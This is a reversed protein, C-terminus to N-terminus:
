LLFLFDFVSLFSRSRIYFSFFSFPAREVHCVRLSDRPPKPTGRSRQMSCRNRDFKTLRVYVSVCVRMCLCLSDRNSDLLRFADGGDGHCFVIADLRIKERPSDRNASGPPAFFRFFVFFFIPISWVYFNYDADERTFPDYIIILNYFRTKLSLLPVATHQIISFRIGRALSRALSRIFCLARSFLFLLKQHVHERAHRPSLSRRIIKDSDSYFFFSFFITPDRPVSLSIPAM